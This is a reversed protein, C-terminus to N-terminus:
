RSQRPIRAAGLLCYEYSQAFSEVHRRTPSLFGTVPAAAGGFMYPGSVGHHEFIPTHKRYLFSLAESTARMDMRSGRKEGEADSRALHSLHSNKVYKLMYISDIRATLLFVVRSLPGPPSGLTEIVALATFVLMPLTRPCYGCAALCRRLVLVGQAHLWHATLTGGNQGPQRKSIAIWFQWPAASAIDTKCFSPTPGRRQIQCWGVGCFEDSIMGGV